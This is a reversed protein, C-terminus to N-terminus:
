EMVDQSLCFDAYGHPLEWSIDSKANDLPVEDVQLNGVFVISVRFLKGQSKVRSVELM